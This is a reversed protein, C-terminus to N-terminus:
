KYGNILEAAGCASRQCCAILGFRAAICSWINQRRRAADGIRSKPDVLQPYQM